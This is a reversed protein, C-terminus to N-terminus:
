PGGEFFPDRDLLDQLGKRFDPGELELKGGTDGPITVTVSERSGTAPNEVTVTYTGPVLRLQHFPSDGPPPELEEGSEAQISVVQGWPVIHLDYPHRTHAQIFRWGLFGAVAAIVGAAAIAHPLFRLPDLPVSSRAAELDKVLRRLKDISEEAGAASVQKGLAAIKNSLDPKKAVARRNKTAAADLAARAKQVDGRLSKLAEQVERVIGERARKLAEVHGALPHLKPGQAGRGALALAERASKVTAPRLSGENERLAEELGASAEKIRAGEKALVAKRQERIREAAQRIEKAKSRIGEADGKRKAEDIRSLCEVAGAMLPQGLLAHDERPVERVEAAAAAIEQYAADAQKRRKAEEEGRRREEEQRVIGEIRQVEAAARPHSSQLALVQKWIKIAGPLDGAKERAAAQSEAEKLAALRRGAKELGEEVSPEGPILKAAEEYLRVAQEFEAAHLREGAEAAKRRGEELRHREEEERTRRKAEEEARRREEQERRRREEEEKARRQEEEAVARDIAELAKAAEEDGPVLELLTSFSVRARKYDKEKLFRRGEVRLADAHMSRTAEEVIRQAEAQIELAERDEPVRELLEQVRALAEEPKQAQLLERAQARKRAIEEFESKKEEAEKKLRFAGTHEPEVGLVEEARRVAAVADGGELSERGVELMANLARELGRRAEVREPQAALIRKYARSAEDHQGDLAFEEARALERRVGKTIAADIAAKESELDRAVADLAILDGQAILDRAMRAMESSRECLPKDILPENRAILSEIEEIVVEAKKRIEVLVTPHVGETRPIVVTADVPAAEEPEYPFVVAEPDPIGQLLDRLLKKFEATSAIREEPNKQMAKTLIAKLKQEVAPPMPGFEAPPSHVIHFITNIDGEGPFPHRRQTLEFLIIGLAWVDVRHDIKGPTTIQEPSMYPITGMIVQTMTAQGFPAKSIGFDTIKVTDDELLMVNAPKLDRHYIGRKHLFGLGDCVQGLVKVTRGLSIPKGKHVYVSLEQADLFEMVFYPPDKSLDTILVINQHRCKAAIQAERYFRELNNNDRFQEKLEKIAVPVELDPDFGRWVRGMGGEGLMELIEYKGFTPKQEEAM